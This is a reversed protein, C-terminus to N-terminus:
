EKVASLWFSFMSGGDMCNEVRIKGNMATILREAMYLGLGHGYVRQSDVPNV